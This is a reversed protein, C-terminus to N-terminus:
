KNEKSFLPKSFIPLPVGKEEFFRYIRELHARNVRRIERRERRTLPRRERLHYQYLTMLLGRRAGRYELWWPGGVVLRTNARVNPDEEKECATIGGQLKVLTQLYIILLHGVEWSLFPYRKEELEPFVAQPLEETIFHFWANKWASFAGESVVSQLYGEFGFPFFPFEDLLGYGLRLAIRWDGSQAAQLSFRLLNYFTDAPSKLGIIRREDPDVFLVAEKLLSWSMDSARLIEEFIHEECISRWVDIATMWNRKRLLIPPLGDIEGKWVEGTSVCTLYIEKGGDYQTIIYGMRVDGFWGERVQNGVWDRPSLIVDQIDGRGGGVEDSELIYVRFGRRPSQPCPNFPSPTHLFDPFPTRLSFRGWDQEEPSLQHSFILENGIWNRFDEKKLIPSAKIREM